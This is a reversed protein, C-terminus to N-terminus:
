SERRRKMALAFFAISCASCLAWSAFVASWGMHDHVYGAFTGSVANGVYFMCDILGAAMGVRGLHSYRMPMFATMLPSLGNMMASCLALLLACLVPNVGYFFMLILSFVVCLATMLSCTRRVDGGMRGYTLRGMQVGLFNIVPLIMVMGMASSLDIGQTDMLLKPAWNMIGDRVYGTLMCCLMLFCLDTGFVLRLLSARQVPDAKKAAEGKKQGGGMAIFSGVGMILTIGGCARFAINWSLSATLRGALIWAVLNGMIMTVSMAFMARPRVEDEFETAMIRVIPTWIMSQLCGNLCWLLMLMWFANAFSFAINVMASGVLGTLIFNRPRFHDALTGNIIQGIAYPIAFLTPLMGIQAGSLSFDAQIAALAPALNTRSVYAASYAVFCAIVLRIQRPTFKKM